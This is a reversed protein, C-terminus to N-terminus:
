GDLIVAWCVKDGNTAADVYVTSLLITGGADAFNLEIENGASLEYGNTATIDSVGIYVIGSNAALAKAKLWRVRNSTNSIQQEGGATSVTTTGADFIM